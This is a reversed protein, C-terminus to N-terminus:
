FLHIKEKLRKKLLVTMVNNYTSTLLIDYELETSNTDSNPIFVSYHFEYGDAQCSIPIPGNWIGEFSLVYYGEEDSFAITGEPISDMAIGIQAGEVPILVGNSSAGTYVHGFLTIEQASLNSLLLSIFLVLSYLIRPFSNYLGM